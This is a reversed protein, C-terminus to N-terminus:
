DGNLYELLSKQKRHLIKKNDLLSNIQTITFEKFGGSKIPFSFFPLILRNLYFVAQRDYANSLRNFGRKVNKTQLYSYQLAEKIINNQIMSNYHNYPIAFGTRGNEYSAKPEFQDLLEKTLIEIFKQIDLGYQTKSVITEKFYKISINHIIQNQIKWSISKITITKGIGEQFFFEEFIKELILLFNQLVYSSLRWISNFGSYIKLARADRALLHLAITELRKFRYDNENFEEHIEGFINLIAQKDFRIRKEKNIKRATIIEIIKKELPGVENEEFFSWLENLNDESLNRTNINNKLSIFFKDMNIRIKDAYIRAEEEADIKEFIKEFDRSTINYGQLAIRKIAIDTTVNRYLKQRTNIFEIDLDIIFVDREDMGPWIKLAPSLRSGIKIFIRPNRKGLFNLISPMLNVKLFSFDDLIIFITDFDEIFSDLIDELVISFFENRILEIQFPKYDKYRNNLFEHVNGIRKYIEAQLDNLTESEKIWIPIHTSKWKIKKESYSKKYEKLNKIFNHIVNICFYYLFMEQWDNNDIGRGFFGEELEKNINMYIGFFPIKKKEEDFKMLNKFFVYDARESELIPILMDWCLVRLISSKGTGPAGFIIVDNHELIKSVTGIEFPKPSFISLLLDRKNFFSEVRGSIFPNKFFNIQRSV